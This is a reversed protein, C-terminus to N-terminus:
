SRRRILLAPTVKAPVQPYDALNNTVLTRGPYLAHAAILRDGLHAAFDPGSAEVALLAKEADLPEVVVGMTRLEAFFREAQGPRGRSRHLYLEAAAVAPLVKRGPYGRLFHALGRANFANTDLVLTEAM